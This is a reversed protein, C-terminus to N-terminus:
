RVVFPAQSMSETAATLVIESDRLCIDQAANVAVQFGSGCLRNVTLCPVHIPVGSNLAVHRSIYCGNTSSVQNINGVVVSDVHDPQIKAQQLAAKASIVGLDISSTDKLRGGYAGFATRKAGIIFVGRLLSSM